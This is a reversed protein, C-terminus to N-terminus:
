GKLQRTGGAGLAKSQRALGAGAERGAHYGDSSSPGSTRRGAYLKPYLEKRKALAEDKRSDVLVLAASTVASTSPWVNGSADVTSPGQGHKAIERAARKSEAMAELVGRVAGLRFSNLWSRGNGKNKEALRSIELVLYTYMYRANEIDSSRGIARICTGREWVDGIRRQYRTQIAACDYHRILGSALGLEWSPVQKTWNGFGNPSEGVPEATREGRVELEAETLGHEQILRDAAAAAAKAENLGTPDGSQQHRIEASKRLALLKQVRSIISENSM